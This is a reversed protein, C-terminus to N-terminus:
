DACLSKAHLETCNISRTSTKKASWLSFSYSEWSLCWDMMLSSETWWFWWEALFCPRLLSSDLGPTPQRMASYERLGLLLVEDEVEKLLSAAVVMAVLLSREQMKLRKYVLSLRFFNELAWTVGCPSDKVAVVKPLSSSRSLAKTVRTAPELLFTLTISTILFTILPPLYCKFSSWLGLRM